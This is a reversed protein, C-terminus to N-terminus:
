SSLLVKFYSFFLNFIEHNEGSVVCEFRALQGEIVNLSSLPTDITPPAKLDITMEMTPYKAEQGGIVKKSTEETVLSKYAAYRGGAQDSHRQRQDSVFDSISYNTDYRGSDTTYGFYNTNNNNFFDYDNFQQHYDYNAFSPSATAGSSKNHDYIFSSTVLNRHRIPVANARRSSRSSRSISYYSNAAANASSRSPLSKDRRQYYYKQYHQKGSNNQQDTSSSMVSSADLILEVPKFATTPRSARKEISGRYYTMKSEGLGTGLSGDYLNLFGGYGAGGTMVDQHHHHHGFRDTYYYYSEETETDTHEFDSRASSKVYNIRSVLPPLSGSRHFPKQFILNM